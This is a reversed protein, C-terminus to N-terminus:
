KEPPQNHKNAAVKWGSAVWTEIGDCARDLFEPIDELEQKTFNALLFNAVEMRGQPRGVGMKLRCYDKSGLIEHTSRIGNHGGHGRDRQFKMAEFPIDVEDHIVLLDDQDIDYYNMIAGISNGSLNMFTQPKVLLCPENNLRVKLTLAKHENKYQSDPANGTLADIAMFGLNHRTLLYKAGPNGLGAILKM